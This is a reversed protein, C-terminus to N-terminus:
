RSTAFSIAEMHTIMNQSRANDQHASPIVVYSRERLFQAAEENELPTIDWTDTGLLQFRDLRGSGNQKAWVSEIANLIQSHSFTIYAM